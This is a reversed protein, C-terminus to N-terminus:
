EPTFGTLSTAEAQTLGLGLLKTNGSTQATVKTTNFAVEADTRSKEENKVELELSDLQTIEETTMDLYEGNPNNLTIVLKKNARIIENSM